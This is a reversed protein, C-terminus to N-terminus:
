RGKRGKKKSSGIEVSTTKSKGIKGLMTQVAKKVKPLSKGSKKM